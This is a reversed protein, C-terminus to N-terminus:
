SPRTQPRCGNRTPMGRWQADGDIEVQDKHNHISLPAGAAERECSSLNLGHRLCSHLNAAKGSDSRAQCKCVLFFGGGGGGGGGRLSDEDESDEAGCGRKPKLVLYLTLLSSSLTGLERRVSRWLLSANMCSSYIYIYATYRCNIKYCNIHVCYNNDLISWQPKFVFFINGLNWEM